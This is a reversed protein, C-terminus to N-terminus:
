GVVRPAVMKLQPELCIMVQSRMLVIVLMLTTRQQRPLEKSEEEEEESDDSSDDNRPADVRTHKLLFWAIELGRREIASSKDKNYTRHVNYKVQTIQFVTSPHLRNRVKTHQRAFERFLRECTAAQVTCDLLFAAM